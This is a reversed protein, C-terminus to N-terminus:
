FEEELQDIKTVHKNSVALLWSKKGAKLICASVQPELYARDIIKIIKGGGEVKLRPLLYKAGIYILAVVIALSLLVQMVYGATIIPSSQLVLTETTM